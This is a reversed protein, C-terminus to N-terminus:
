NCMWEVEDAADAEPNDSPCVPLPYKLAQRLNHYPMHRWIYFAFRLRYFIGM